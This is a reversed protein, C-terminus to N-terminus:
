GQACVTLFPKGPLWFLWVKGVVAFEARCLIWLFMSRVLIPFLAPSFCHGRGRAFDALPIVELSCGPSFLVTPGNFHDVLDMVKGVLEVMNAAASSCEVVNRQYLVHRTTNAFLGPYMQDVHRFAVDYMPGTDYYGYNPDEGLILIIINLRPAMIYSQITLSPIQLALFGLTLNTIHGKM